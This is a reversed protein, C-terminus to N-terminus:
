PVRTIGVRLLIAAAITANGTAPEPAATARNTRASRTVHRSRPRDGGAPQDQHRRGAGVLSRWGLDGRPHGRDAAPIPDHFLVPIAILPSRKAAPTGITSYHLQTSPWLAPVVLWSAGRGRLYALAIVTPVLLWTGVASLNGAQTPSGGLVLERQEISAHDVLSPTM